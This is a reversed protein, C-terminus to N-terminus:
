GIASVKYGVVVGSHYLPQVYDITRYTRDFSDWVRDDKAPLATLGQEELDLAPIRYEYRDQELSGGLPDNLVRKGHIHVNVELVQERSMFRGSRGNKRIERAFLQLQANAM